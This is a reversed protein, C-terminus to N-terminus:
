AMVGVIVGNGDVVMGDTEKRFIYGTQNTEAYLQDLRQVTLNLTDVIWYARKWNGLAYVKLGTASSSPAYESENVPYGLLDFGIGSGPTERLLPRGIGDVLLNIEKLITRHIIWSAGARYQAKLAFVTGVLDPLSIDTASACTFTTPISSTFLGLPQQAGTGTMFANEEAESFRNSGEGRVWAEVDIGSLRLLTNSIKVRKALPHPTLSRGGFPTSTDDSGTLIESTWTADDMDSATGVRISAASTLPPLVRGLRRMLVADELTEILESLVVEPAILAGGAADIGMSLAKAEVLQRDESSLAGVGDALYRRFTETYAVEQEAKFRRTGTPTFVKVENGDTKFRVTAPAASATTTFPEVAKASTAMGPLLGASQRGWDEISKAKAEREAQQVGAEYENKADIAADIAADYNSKAEVSAWVGDNYYEAAIADALAKAELAKTKLDM